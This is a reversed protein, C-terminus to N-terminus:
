TSHLPQNEEENEDLYELYNCRNAAWNQSVCFFSFAILTKRKRQIKFANKDLTVAGTLREWKKKEQEEEDEEVEEVEEECNNQTERVSREM